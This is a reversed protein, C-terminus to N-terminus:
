YVFEYIFFLRYRTYNVTNVAITEQSRKRNICLFISSVAFAVSVTMFVLAIPVWDNPICEIKEYNQQCIEILRCQNCDHYKRVSVSVHTTANPSNSRAENIVTCIYTGSSTAHLKDFELKSHTSTRGIPSEQSTGNRRFYWKFAPPPNSITLCQITLHDGVTYVSKNPTLIITTEDPGDTM